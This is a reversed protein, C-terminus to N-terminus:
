GLEQWASTQGDTRIAEIHSLILGGKPFGKLPHYGKKALISAPQADLMRLLALNGSRHAIPKADFRAFALFPLTIRATPVEKPLGELVVLRATSVKALDHDFSIITKM